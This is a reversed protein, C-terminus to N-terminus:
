RSKLLRGSFGAAPTRVRYLYIGPELKRGDFSFHHSGPALMDSEHHVLVGLINYISLEVQERVPTYCALRTKDSFPNPVNQFVQFESHSDPDIGLVEVVRIVISSDDLFPIKTPIGMIDITAGIHIELKFEGTQTPTGTLQICYSTDPFFVDANPFYDIGPPLNKVSDIEIYDINWMEYPPPASGPAIVTVVEDYLVALGADPLKDPCFQGPAGIDICNVTDPICQASIQMSTLFGIILIAPLIPTRYM